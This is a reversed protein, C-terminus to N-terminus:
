CTGNENPNEEHKSKKEGDAKNESDTTAKRKTGKKDKGKENADDGFTSEQSYEKFYL